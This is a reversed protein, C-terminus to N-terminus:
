VELLDIVNFIMSELIQNYDRLESVVETGATGLLKSIDDKFLVKGDIDAHGKTILPKIAEDKFPKEKETEVYNTIDEATKLIFKTFMRKLAGEALEKSGWEIKNIEQQIQDIENQKAKAAETEGARELEEKEREKKEKIENQCVINKKFEDWKASEELAAAAFFYLKQIESQNKVSERGLSDEFAPLNVVIEFRSALIALWQKHESLKSALATSLGKFHNHTFSCKKTWWKIRKRAMADYDLGPPGTLEQLVLQEMTRKKSPKDFGAEDQATWWNLKENYDDSSGPSNHPLYEIQMNKFLWLMGCRFLAANNDAGMGFKKAKPPIFSGKTVKPKYQLPGDWNADGEHTDPVLYLSAANTGAEGYQSTRVSFLHSAMFFEVLVDEGRIGTTKDPHGDKPLAIAMKGPITKYHLNYHNTKTSHSVKRDPINQDDGQGDWFKNWVAATDDYLKLEDGAQKVAGELRSIILNRADTRKPGSKNAFAATVGAPDIGPLVKHLTKDELHKKLKENFQSQQKPDPHITGDFWEDILGSFNEKNSSKYNYYLRIGSLPYYQLLFSRFREELVVQLIIKAYADLGVM